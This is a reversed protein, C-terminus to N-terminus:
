PPDVQAAILALKASRSLQKIEAERRLAAGRGAQFEVYRLQLPLRGRTYKAGRGSRHQRLRAESDRAVGTYLTGGGCRLMYVSWEKKGKKNMGQIMQQYRSAM